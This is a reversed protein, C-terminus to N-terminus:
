WLTKDKLEKFLMSLLLVCTFGLGILAVIILVSFVGQSMYLTPEM